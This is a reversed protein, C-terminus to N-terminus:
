WFNLTLQFNIYGMNIRMILAQTPDLIDNHGVINPSNLTTVHVYIVSYSEKGLGSKQMLM